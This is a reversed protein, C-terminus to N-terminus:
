IINLYYGSKISMIIASVEHHYSRDPPYMELHFWNIESLSVRQTSTSETGGSPRDHDIARCYGDSFNIVGGFTSMESGMVPFPLSFWEFARWARWGCDAGVPGDPLLSTTGLASLQAGSWSGLDWLDCFRSRYQIYVIDLPSRSM